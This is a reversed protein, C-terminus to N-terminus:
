ASYWGELHFGPEIPFLWNAPGESVGPKRKKCLIISKNTSPVEQSPLFTSTSRFPLSPCSAPLPCLYFWLSIGLWATVHEVYFDPSLRGLTTRAQYRSPRQDAPAHSTTKGKEEKKKKGENVSSDKDLDMLYEQKSEEAERGVRFSYLLVVRCARVLRGVQAALVDAEGKIAQPLVFLDRFCRLTPVHM